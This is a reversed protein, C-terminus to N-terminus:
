REGPADRPFLIAVEGMVADVASLVRIREFWESSMKLICVEQVAGAWSSLGPSGQLQHHQPM